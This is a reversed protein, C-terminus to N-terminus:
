LAWNCWMTCYLCSEVKYYTVYVAGAGLNGKKLCSLKRGGTALHRFYIGTCIEKNDM